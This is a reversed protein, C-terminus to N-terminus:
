NRDMRRAPIEYPAILACLKGFIDAQHTVQVWRVRAREGKGCFFGIGGASYKDDSWYDAFQGEIMLTFESGHVDLLVRRMSINRLPTPISKSVREVERGAVVRYRVIDITPHAGTISLIKVVYYNRWDQIRFAVGIAHQEVQALFELRYDKLNISPRYIALAGPRVFGTGDYAWASSLEGRAQWQELGSRFDDQLEVAARNHIGQRLESFFNAASLDKPTLVSINATSLLAACLVPVVWLALARYRSPIRWSQSM